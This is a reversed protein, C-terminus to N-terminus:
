NAVVNRPEEGDLAGQINQWCFNFMRQMTELSGGVHPTLIVNEMTRLPNDPAPPEVTTADLGAGLIHGEQLAEILASEDVIAGRATNILVASSKMSALQAQGIMNETSSTIPVHLTVVDSTELLEQLEIQTVGFEQQQQESIKSLNYVQMHCDFGRLRKAVQQAINGFGVIGITKDVLDHYTLPDTAPSDMVWSGEAVRAAAQPLKRLLALLLLVTHEAVVAANMGTSTALPIGLKKLVDLDLSDHGSSALQIFKLKPAARLVAESVIPGWGLLVEADALAEIKEADSAQSSIKTMTFGEPTSALAVEEITGPALHMFVAKTKTM